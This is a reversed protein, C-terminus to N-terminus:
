WGGTAVGRVIPGHSAPIQWGRQGDRLPWAARAGGNQSQRIISYEGSSLESNERADDGEGELFVFVPREEEREDDLAEVIALHHVDDKEAGDFFGDLAARYAPAADFGM